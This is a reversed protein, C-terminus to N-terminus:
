ALSTVDIVYIGMANDVIMLQTITHVRQEMSRVTKKGYARVIDEDNLHQGASKHYNIEVM